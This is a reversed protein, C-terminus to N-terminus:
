LDVGSGDLGMSSEAGRSQFQTQGNGSGDNNLDQSVNDLYQTPDDTALLGLLTLGYQPAIYAAQSAQSNYATLDNREYNANSGSHFIAAEPNSDFTQNGFTYRFNLQGSETMTVRYSGGDLNSLDIGSSGTTQLFGNYSMANGFASVSACAM